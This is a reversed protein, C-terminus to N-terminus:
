ISNRGDLRIKSKEGSQWSWSPCAKVLKEGAQVFEEPTLMGKEHFASQQLVPTLFERTDKFFRYANEM